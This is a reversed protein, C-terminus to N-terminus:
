TAPVVEVTETKLNLCNWIELEDSSEYAICLCVDERGGTRRAYEISHIPGSISLSSNLPVSAIMGAQIHGGAMEGALVFLRRNELAFTDNVRFTSMGFLRFRSSILKSLRLKQFLQCM